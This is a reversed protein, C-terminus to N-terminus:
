LTDLGTYYIDYGGKGGPRNSSFVLMWNSYNVLRFAVPRYEDYSSNINSLNSPSSWHNNSFSSRYIDFGGKGGARNSVFLMTNGIIFPCKDDQDSNLDPDKTILLNATSDKLLLLVSDRNTNVDYPLNCSYIHFRGERNSCFYVSGNPGFTIYADDSKSNIAAAKYVPLPSGASDNLLSAWQEPNTMYIDLGTSDASRDSAFLLVATDFPNVGKHWDGLIVPGFENGESNIGTRNKGSEVM